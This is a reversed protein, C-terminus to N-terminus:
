TGNNENHCESMSNVREIQVLDITTDHDVLLSSTPTVEDDNFLLRIYM